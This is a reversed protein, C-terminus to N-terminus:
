CFAHIARHNTLSTDKNIISAYHGTAIYDAGIKFAYDIFSKFKIERNCLVDPNPTRGKEHEKLFDQFGLPESSNLFGFISRQNQGFRRRSIPGLLSSVIPHM